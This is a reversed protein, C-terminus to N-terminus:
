EGVHIHFTRVLGAGPVYEGEIPGTYRWFGESDAKWDRWETVLPKGRQKKVRPFGPPLDSARARISAQYQVWSGVGLWYQDIVHFGFIRGAYKMYGGQGEAEEGSIPYPTARNYYAGFSRADVNQYSRWM